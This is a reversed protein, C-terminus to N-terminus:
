CARDAGAKCLAEQLQKASLGQPQVKGDVVTHPYCQIKKSHEYANVVVSDYVKKNAICKEMADSDIGSSKMCPKLHEPGCSDSGPTNGKVYCGLFDALTDLAKGACGDVCGTVHVACSEHIECTCVSKPYFSTDCTTPDVKHIGDDVPDPVPYLTFNVQASLNSRHSL